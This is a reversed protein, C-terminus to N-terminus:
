VFKKPRQWGHLQLLLCTIALHLSVSLLYLLYNYPMIAHLSQQHHTRCYSFWAFFFFLYKKWLPIKLLSSSLRLFTDNQYLGAPSSLTTKAPILLFLTEPLYFLLCLLVHPSLMNRCGLFLISHLSSLCYSLPSSNYTMRVKAKGCHFSFDNPATSYCSRIKNLLIVCQLLTCM